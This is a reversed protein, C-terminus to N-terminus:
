RRYAGARRQVRATQAPAAQVATVAGATTMNNVYEKVGFDGADITTHLVIPVGRGNDNATHRAIQSPNFISGPTSPAFFEQGNENIRYVQGVSVPGGIARGGGFGPMSGGMGFLARIGGTVLDFFGNGGGGRGGAAQGGANSPFLQDMLNELTRDMLREVIRQIANLAADAFSQWLSKGERINDSFEKFFSKTTERYFEYEERAKAVARSAQEEAEARQRIADLQEPTLAISEREARNVAEQGARWVALADGHLGIAQREAALERMRQEHERQNDAMFRDRADSMMERADTASAGNIAARVEPDNLDVNARRAQDRLDVRRQERVLEEGSLGILGREDARREADLRNEELLNQAFLLNRTAREQQTLALAMAQVQMLYQNDIRVGKARAENLLRQQHEAFILADGAFQTLRAEDQLQRIREETDRQQQVVFSRDREILQQETLADALANLERRQQETLVINQRQAENVLKQRNDFQLMADESAGLVANRAKLAEIEQRTRTVMERYPDRQSGRGASRTRRTEEESPRPRRLAAAGSRLMDAVGGLTDTGMQENWIAGLDSVRRTPAAGPDPGFLFRQRFRAINYESKSIAYEIDRVVQMMSSAVIRGVGIFTNVILNGLWKARNGIGVIKQGGVDLSDGMFIVASAALGLLAIFAGIPTTLLFVAVFALMKATVMAVQIALVAFSKIAVAIVGANAVALAATFIGLAITVLGINDALLEMGDALLRTSVEAAAAWDVMQIGAAVLAVLGITLLAQPELVMRFAGVLTEGMSRGTQAFVASMQTGQQLGIMLPNMGMAATVGIDQFQAAINGTNARLAGTADKAQLAFAETADASQAAQMATQQMAERQQAASRQVAAALEASEIATQQMAERQQALDLSLRRVAQSAATTAPAAESLSANYNNTATTLANQAVKLRELDREMAKNTAASTDGGAIQNARNQVRGQVQALRRQALELAKAEATNAAMSRTNHVVKQDFAVAAQEADQTAKTLAAKARTVKNQAVALQEATVGEKRQVMELNAQAEALGISRDRMEQLANKSRRAAGEVINIQNATANAAGSLAKAAGTAQTISATVEEMTKDVKHGADVLRQMDVAAARAGATDVSVGLEAVNTTM